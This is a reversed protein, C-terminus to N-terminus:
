RRPRSQPEAPSSIRRRRSVGAAVGAWVRGCGVLSALPQWGDPVWGAAQADRLEVFGLPVLSGVAAEWNDPAPDCSMQTWDWSGDPRPEREPYCFGCSGDRYLTALTWLLGDGDRRVFCVPKDLKPRQVPM